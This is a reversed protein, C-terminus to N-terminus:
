YNTILLETVKGRKQANSNINRSASIRKIKIGKGRYLADFFNDSVDISKPDSNSLMLKPKEDMASLNKYFNALEEQDRDNFGFESYATFSASKTLPRYPPDFYIFTNDTVEYKCMQYTDHILNIGQLVESVKRLNTEDCIMPNKYKGKPVNYESSANVRFLGNFCTKNLFLMLSARELLNVNLENTTRLQNFRARQIYYYQTREEESMASYVINHENLLIILDDVNKQIQEYLNIIDFNTDILVVKKFSYKGLLHFFLAGGGLFAEIYTDIKGSKLASPLHREIENLLQTKGGAWKLFPKAAVKTTMECGGSTFELYFFSVMFSVFSGQQSSSRGNIQLNKKENM